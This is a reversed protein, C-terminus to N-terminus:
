KDSNVSNVIIKVAKTQPPLSLTMADSYSVTVNTGKDISDAKLAAGSEDVIETEDTIYVIVNSDMKKDFIEISLAGNETTKSIVEATVGNEAPYNVELIGKEDVKYSTELIEDLFNIPVYTVGNELIPKSGLKMPATKAFTYGDDDVRFTIYVPIDSIIVKRSENDWEVTMGLAECVSRVPIFKEGNATVYIKANERLAGNVYVAGTPQAFVSTVIAAASIAAALIGKMNLKFTKKM